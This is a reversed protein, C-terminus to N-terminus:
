AANEKLARRDLRAPKLHSPIAIALAVIAALIACSVILTPATAVNFLWLALAIPISAMVSEVVVVACTIAFSTARLRIPWALHQHM